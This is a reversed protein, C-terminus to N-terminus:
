LVLLAGNIVGGIAAPIWVDCPVDYLDDQKVQKGEKFEKFYSAIDGKGEMAVFHTLLKPIDIGEPRDDVLASNVDSIAM